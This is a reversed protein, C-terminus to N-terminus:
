RSPEEEGELEFLRSRALTTLPGNVAYDRSDIRHIPVIGTTSSTIFVESARELDASTLDGDTALEADLLVERLIGPLCGSDLSPTVIRQDIVLFLNSTTCECLRGTTDCLLANDFGLQQAHRLILANDGWSTSKIGALPSRENRTWKVSCLSVSAPADPLPSLAILTLPQTGRERPSVGPGPTMTIRVRATEIDNVDILQHIAATLESDTPTPTIALRNIGARLRRLHRELFVPTGNRVILTDFVGDGLLLGHDHASIAPFSSDVLEGNVWMM